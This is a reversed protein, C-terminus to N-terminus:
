RLGKTNAESKLAAFAGPLSKRIKGAFFLGYVLEM